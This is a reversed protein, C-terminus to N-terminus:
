CFIFVVVVIVLVVIVLVVIVQVSSRILADALDFLSDRLYYNDRM